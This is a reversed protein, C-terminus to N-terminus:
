RSNMVATLEADDEPMPIEADKAILRTVTIFPPAPRAEVKTEFCAEYADAIRLILRRAADDLPDAPPKTKAPAPASAPVPAPTTDPLASAAEAIRELERSIADFYAKDHARDFPDTQRLREAMAQRTPDDLDSLLRAVRGATEALARPRAQPTQPPAPSPAPTSATTDAVPQRAPAKATSRCRAIGYEVAAAFLDRSETDGIAHETLCDLLGTRGADSLRYPELFHAKKVRKLANRPAPEAPGTDTTRIRPSRPPAGPHTSTPTRIGSKRM